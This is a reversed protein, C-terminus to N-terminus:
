SGRMLKHHRLAALIASVATRCESDVTGGGTPADIPDVAAGLIAEGALIIRDARASGIDWVGSLFRAEVQEGVLWVHFGETPMVFRWGGATWSALTNAKGAWAAVPSAGVIWCQGEVPDAPPSDIGVAIVSAQIAADLRALGENHTMEKQAQGPVIMPLALRATTDTM